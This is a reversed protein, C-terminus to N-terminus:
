AFLCWGDEQHMKRKLETDQEFLETKTYSHKQNILWISLSFLLVLWM